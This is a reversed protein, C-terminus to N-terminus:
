GNVQHEQGQEERDDREEAHEYSCRGTQESTDVSGGIGGGQQATGHGERAAGSQGQRQQGEDERHQLGLIPKTGSSCALAHRGGTAPATVGRCQPGTLTLVDVVPCPNDM